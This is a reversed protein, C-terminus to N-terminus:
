VVATVIASSSLPLLTWPIARWKLVSDVRNGAGTIKEESRNVKM